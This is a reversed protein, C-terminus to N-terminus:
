RCNRFIEIGGAAFKALPQKVESQYFQKQITPWNQALNGAKAEHETYVCRLADIQPRSHDFSRPEIRAKIAPDKILRKVIHDRSPPKSCSTCKVPFFGSFLSFKNIFIFLSKKRPAM